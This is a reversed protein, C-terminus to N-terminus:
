GYFYSIRSHSHTLLNSGTYIWDFQLLVLIYNFHLWFHRMVEWAILNNSCIGVSSSVTHGTSYKRVKGILKFAYVM